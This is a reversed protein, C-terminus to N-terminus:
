SRSYPREPQSVIDVVCGKFIFDAAVSASFKLKYRRCYMGEMVGSAMATEISAAGWNFAGWNLSLWLAATNEMPISLSGIALTPDTKISLNLTVGSGQAYVDVREISKLVDPAGDDLWPFEVEITITSGGTGDQAKEDKVGYYGIFPRYDFGAGSDRDRTDVFLFSANDGFGSAKPVLAAQVYWGDWQTWVRFRQDYVLLVNNRVADNSFAVYLRQGSHNLLVAESIRSPSITDLVDGVDTYGFPATENGNVRHLGAAGLFYVVQGLSAVARPGACGAGTYLHTVTFNTVDNGEFAWVSKSKLVLLRDSQKVVATIDDGDDKGFDYGNRADWNCIGSSFLDGIAQSVYLTSGSWAVLRDNFALIGNVHGDPIAGFCNDDAQEGLDADSFTDGPANTTGTGDMVWYFPGASTGNLMSRELTWGVYDTRGAPNIPIATMDIRDGAAVAVSFAASPKSSGDTFIHRIRYWYTGAAIATGAAPTTPPAAAMAASSPTPYTMSLFTNAANTSRYFAPASTGQDETLFLAGNLQDGSLVSDPDLAAPLTQSTYASSEVEFLLGGECGVFKKAGGGASGVWEHISNPKDSLTASSMRQSGKRVTAARFPRMELNKALALFNPRLGYESIGSRQGGSIDLLRNQYRKAM